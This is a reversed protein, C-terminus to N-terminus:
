LFALVIGTQLSFFPNFRLASYWTVVCYESTSIMNYKALCQGPKSNKQGNARELSWNASLNLSFTKIIDWPFM